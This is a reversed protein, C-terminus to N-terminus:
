GIWGKAKQAVQMAPLHREVPLRLPSGIREIDPHLWSCEIKDLYGVLAVIRISEAVELFIGRGVYTKNRYDARHLALYQM